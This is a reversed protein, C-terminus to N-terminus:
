GNGKGHVSKLHVTLSYKQTFRAPCSDCAHPREGTHTLIHNTLTKNCNFGRGCITCLKDKPRPIGEHVSRKHDKLRTATLFRKECLDCGHGKNLHVYRYHNLMFTRRTYQKDCDPCQVLPNSERNQTEHKKSTALHRKYANMNSYHTDCEVCYVKEQNKHYRTIHDRLSRYRDFNVNEIDSNKDIKVDSEDDDADFAATGYGFVDGHLEEKSDEEYEDDRVYNELPVEALKLYGMDGLKGVSFNEDKVTLEQKVVDENGDPGIGDHSICLVTDFIHVRLKSLSSFLFKERIEM